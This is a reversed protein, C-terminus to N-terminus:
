LTSQTVLPSWLPEFPPIFCSGAVPDQFFYHNPSAWFIGFWLWITLLIIKQLDIYQKFAHLLVPKIDANSGEEKPGTSFRMIECKM